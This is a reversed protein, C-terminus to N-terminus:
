IKEFINMPIIQKTKKGDRLLRSDELFNKM